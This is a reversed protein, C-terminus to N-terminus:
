GDREISDLISPMLAKICVWLLRAMRGAEVPDESEEMSLDLVSFFFLFALMEGPPTSEPLLSGLVDAWGNMHKRLRRNLEQTPKVLEGEREMLGRQVLLDIYPRVHEKRFELFAKTVEYLRM